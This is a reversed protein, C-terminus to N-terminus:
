YEFTALVTDSFFRGGAPLEQLEIPSSITQLMLTRASEPLRLSLVGDASHQEGQATLVELRYPALTRGDSLYRQMGDGNRGDSLSLRFDGVNPSCLYGLDSRESSQAGILCGARVNMTAQLQGSSAMVMAPLTLLCTCVLGCCLSTSNSFQPM